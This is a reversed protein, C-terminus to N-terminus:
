SMILVLNHPMRAIQGKFGDYSYRYDVFRYIDNYGGVFASRYKERGWLYFPNFFNSRTLGTREEVEKITM